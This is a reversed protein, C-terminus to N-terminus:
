SLRKKLEDFSRIIPLNNRLLLQANAYADDLRQDEPLLSSIVLYWEYDAAAENGVKEIFEFAGTLAPLIFLNYATWPSLKFLLNVPDEGGPGTPYRVHIKDQQYGFSIPMDPSQARFHFINGLGLKENLKEIPLTVKGSVALVENEDVVFGVGQYAPNFSEDQYSAIQEKAIVFVQAEIKNAVDDEDLDFYEGPDVIAWTKYTSSCYIKVLLGAKGKDVFSKIYENDIQTKTIRFQLTRAESKREVQIDANFEGVMDDGVGLVPHPFSYAETFM